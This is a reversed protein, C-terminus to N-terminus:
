RASKPSEGKYRGQTEVSMTCVAKSRCDDATMEEVETMQTAKKGAPPLVSVVADAVSQRESGAV